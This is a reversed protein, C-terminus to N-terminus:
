VLVNHNGRGVGQMCVDVGMVKLKFAARSRLEQKRSAKVYPDNIHRQIWQHVCMVSGTAAAPRVLPIVPFASTPIPRRRTRAATASIRPFVLPM